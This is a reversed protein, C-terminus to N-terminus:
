DQESSPFYHTFKEYRRTRRSAESYVLRYQNCRYFAAAILYPLNQHSNVGVACLKLTIKLQYVHSLSFTPRVGATTM